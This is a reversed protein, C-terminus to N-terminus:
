ISVTWEGTALTVAKVSDSDRVGSYAVFVTINYETFEQLNRIRFSRINFDNISISSSDTFCMTDTNSYTINYSLPIVNRLITWFVIISTTTASVSTLSIAGRETRVSIPSSYVGTGAENVAAVSVEYSVLPLLGTITFMNVDNGTVM